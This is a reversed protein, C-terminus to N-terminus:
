ATLSSSCRRDETTVPDSHYPTTKQAIGCDSHATKYVRLSEISDHSTSVSHKLTEPSTTNEAVHLFVDQPQSEDDSSVASSTYRPHAHKPREKHATTHQTCGTARYQLNDDGQREQLAHRKMTSQNTQHGSAEACRANCARM